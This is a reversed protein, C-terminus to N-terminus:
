AAHNQTNLFEASEGSVVPSKACGGSPSTSLLSFYIIISGGLRQIMSNKFSEM